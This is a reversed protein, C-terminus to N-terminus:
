STLGPFVQKLSFAPMAAQMRLRPLLILGLAASVTSKQRRSLYDHM